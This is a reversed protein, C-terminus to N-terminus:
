KSFIYINDFVEVSIPLYKYFTLLLSMLCCHMSDLKFFENYNVKFLDLEAPIEM